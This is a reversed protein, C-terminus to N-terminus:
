LPFHAVHTVCMYYRHQTKPMNCMYNICRYYMCDLVTKITEWLENQITELHINKNCRFPDPPHFELLHKLKILNWINIQVLSM